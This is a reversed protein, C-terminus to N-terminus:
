KCKKAYLHDKKISDSRMVRQRGLTKKKMDEFYLGSKYTDTKRTRHLSYFMKKKNYRKQRALPTNTAAKQQQARKQSSRLQRVALIGPSLPAGVFDLQRAISEGVGWNVGSVGSHVRAEYNRPFTKNKPATSSIAKNVAETKQTNLLEQTKNIAAGGLRYDICEVLKNVDTEMPQICFDSSLYVSHLLWNSRIKGKCVWSHKKCLTHDAEYCKIIADRVYTMSRKIKNLEGALKVFANSHEAHCRSALDDAFRGQQTKQEAVTKGPFMKKSFDMKKVFKRQNHSFHRTDLQHRPSVKLKGAEYLDSGARYSSSDPDTIITHVNINDAALKMLSETAYQKENGIVDTYKLNAKCGDHNPCIREGTINERRVGKPCLMGKNTIDIVFKKNTRAEVTVHTVQTGAQFPTKGSQQVPNNYRSDMQVSIPHNEPLGSKTNLDKIKKRIDRMDEKNQKILLDGVKNASSQMATPCPAPIGMSNLIYSMGVNSIGTHHMGVQLAYNINAVKPGRTSTKITEYLQKSSSIYGCTLCTLREQWALGKKVAAHEDWSLDGACNRARKRHEKYATNFLDLLNGRHYIRYSNQECKASIPDQQLQELVSGLIPDPKTSKKPRLYVTQHNPQLGQLTPVGGHGAAAVMTDLKFDDENLRVYTPQECTAMSDSEDKIGKNHPIHGPSFRGARYRKAHKQYKMIFNELIQKYLSCCKIELPHSLYFHSTVQKFFIQKGGRPVCPGGMVMLTTLIKFYTVTCNFPLVWTSGTNVSGPGGSWPTIHYQLLPSGYAVFHSM